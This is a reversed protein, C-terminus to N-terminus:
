TDVQWKPNLHSTVLVTTYVENPSRGIDLHVNLKWLSSVRRFLWVKKEQMILKLNACRSPSPRIVFADLFPLFELASSSHVVLFYRNM